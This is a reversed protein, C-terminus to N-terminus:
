QAAGDGDIKEMWFCPGRDEGFLFESTPAFGLVTVISPHRIRALLGFEAEFAERTLDGRKSLLKVAVVDGEPTRAEIVEGSLGRGLSKILTWDM